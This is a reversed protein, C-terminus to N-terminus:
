AGANWFIQFVLAAPAAALFADYIDLVGGHRGLVAPFDKAGRRRKLASTALDGAIGTFLVLLALLAAALLNIELLFYALAGGVFGGGIVGAILGELTKGPSLSPFAKTSGFLKGLLLAFSDNAEVTAYVVVIWAFGSADLRLMALAMCFLAPFFLGAVNAGIARGRAEKPWFLMGLVFIVAAGFLLLWLGFASYGFWPMTLALGGAGLGLFTLINWPSLAFLKVLEIQGRLCLAIAFLTFVWEGLAAPILVAGVILFESLYLAWLDAQLNARVGILGALLILLGGAAFLGGVAALVILAQSSM